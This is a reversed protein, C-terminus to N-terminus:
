LPRSNYRLHGIPYSSNYVYMGQFCCTVARNNFKYNDLFPYLTPAEFTDSKQGTSDYCLLKQTHEMSKRDNSHVNYPINSDKTAFSGLSICLLVALSKLM